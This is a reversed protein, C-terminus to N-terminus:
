DKLSVAEPALSGVTSGASAVAVPFTIVATTGRGVDSELRIAGRHFSVIKQAITLGLGMNNKKAKTTFFPEFVHPLDQPSIGCGTDSIRVEIQGSEWRTRLRLIGEGPMTQFANVMLGVFAQALRGPVCRLAPLHDFDREIVVSQTQETRTLKLAKDLLENIDAFVFDAADDQFLERLDASVRALAETGDLCDQCIARVEQRLLPLDVQRSVEDVRDAAQRIESGVPQQRCLTLLRTTQEFVADQDSMYDVLSRLNSIVFSLPTTIEHVLGASLSGWAAVKEQEIIKSQAARLNDYANALEQNRQSLVKQQKWIKIHLSIRAGVERIDFPKQIFDQAGLNLGTLRNEVDAYGSMFLVPIDQAGPLARVKEIFDFGSEDRDLVLDLLIVDPMEHQIAQLAAVSTNAIRTTFGQAQLGLQLVKAISPEDDLVLISGKNLANM